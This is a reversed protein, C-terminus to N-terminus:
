FGYRSREYMYQTSKDFTSLVAPLILDKPFKQVMEQLFAKTAVKGRLAILERLLDTLANASVKPSQQFIRIATDTVVKWAAEPFRRGVNSSWSFIVSATYKSLYASLSEWDQDVEFLSMISEQHQWKRIDKDVLLKKREAIWQDRGAVEIIKRLSIKPTQYGLQHLKLALDVQGQVDKMEALLDLELHAWSGLRQPNAQNLNFGRRITKLAKALDGKKRATEIEQLLFYRTNAHKKAFALVGEAGYLRRVMALQTETVEVSDDSYAKFLAEVQNAEEGLTCIRSALRLFEFSRDYGSQQAVVRALLEKRTAEPMDAKGMQDLTRAAIKLGDKASEFNTDSLNQLAAFELLVQSAAVWALDYSAAEALRGSELAWEHLRKVLVGTAAKNVKGSKGIAAKVTETIRKRTFSRFFPGQAAARHEQRAQV